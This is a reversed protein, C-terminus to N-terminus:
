ASSTMSVHSQRMRWFPTDAFVPAAALLLLSTCADSSQLVSFSFMSTKDESCSVVFLGDPSFSASYVTGGHGILDKFKSATSPDRLDKM